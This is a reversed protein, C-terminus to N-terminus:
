HLGITRYDLELVVEKLVELIVGFFNGPLHLWDYLHDNISGPVKLFFNQIFITLLGREFSKIRTILFITNLFTDNRVLFRNKLLLVVRRITYSASGIYSAGGVFITTPILGYLIPVGEM